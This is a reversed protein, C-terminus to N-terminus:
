TLTPVHWFHSSTKFRCARPITSPITIRQNIFSLTIRIRSVVDITYPNTDEGTKLDYFKRTRIKYEYVLITWDSFQKYQICSMYQSLHDNTSYSYLFLNNQFNKKRQSWVSSWSNPILKKKVLCV